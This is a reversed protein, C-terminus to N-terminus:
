RRTFAKEDHKIRVDHTDARSAEQLWYAYSHSGHNTKIMSNQEAPGVDGTASLHNDVQYDRVADRYQDTIVGDTILESDLERNRTRQVWRVYDCESISSM